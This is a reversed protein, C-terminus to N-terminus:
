RFNSFVKRYAQRLWIGAQQKRRRARLAKLYKRYRISECSIYEDKEDEYYGEMVGIM